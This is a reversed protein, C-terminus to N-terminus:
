PSLIIISLFYAADVAVAMPVVLTANPWSPLRQSERDVSLELSIRQNALVMATKM